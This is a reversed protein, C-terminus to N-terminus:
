LMMAAIIEARHQVGPVSNYEVNDSVTKEGLLAQAAIPLATRVPASFNVM